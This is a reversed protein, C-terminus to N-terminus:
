FFKISPSEECSRYVKGRQFSSHGVSLSLFIKCRSGWKGFPQFKWTLCFYSAGVLNRGHTALTLTRLSDEVAKGHSHGSLQGSASCGSSLTTSMLSALITWYNLRIVGSAIFKIKLLLHQYAPMTACFTLWLQPPVPMRHETTPEFQSQKIDSDLERNIYVLFYCIINWTSSWISNRAGPKPSAWGQSNYVMM